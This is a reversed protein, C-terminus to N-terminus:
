LTEKYKKALGNIKKALSCLAPDSNYLKGMAWSALEGVQYANLSPKKSLSEAPANQNMLDILEPVASDLVLARLEQGIRTQLGARNIGDLSM